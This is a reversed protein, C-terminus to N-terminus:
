DELTVGTAILFRSVMNYAAIAAIVEVLRRDDGVARRAADRTAPTVAISRTMELTLQLLAREDTTLAPSTVADAGAQMADLVPQRGGAALYLPAHHAYEYPAGNLVAVYSVVLELADPALALGTRVEGLFANWGRALPPSHLLMRDLNLLEGGRRARIAAVLEAPETITASVYPISAM